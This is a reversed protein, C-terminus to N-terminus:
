VGRVTRGCYGPHRCIFGQFHQGGLIAEGSVLGLHDVIKSGEIGPTTVVLM